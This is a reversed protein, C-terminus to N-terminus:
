AALDQFIKGLTELTPNFPKNPDILDYLTSRGMKLNRSLALKSSTRLYAILIDQFTELDNETLAEILVERVKKKDALDPYLDAQYETYSHMSSEKQKKSTKKNAMKKSGSYPM